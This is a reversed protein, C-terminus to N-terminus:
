GELMTLHHRMEEEMEREYEARHFLFRIRGLLERM